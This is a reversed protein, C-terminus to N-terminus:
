FIKEEHSPFCFNNKGIMHFLFVNKRLFLLNVYLELSPSHLLPVTSSNRFLTMVGVNLVGVTMVGVSIVGVIM